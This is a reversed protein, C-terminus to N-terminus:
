GLYNLRCYATFTPHTPAQSDSILLMYLQNKVPASATAANYHVEMGTKGFKHNIHLWKNLPRTSGVAQVQLTFKYDKLINYKIRSNKKYPSDVSPLAAPSIGGGAIQDLIDAAVPFTGTTSAQTFLIIRIRNYADRGLINMSIKISKLTIKNGARQNTADGQIIQGLNAVDITAGPNSVIPAALWWTDMWRNDSQKYVLKKLQKVQKRLTPKRRKRFARQIRRAYFGRGNRVRKHVLYPMIDYRSIINKGLTDCKM